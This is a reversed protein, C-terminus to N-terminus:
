TCPHDSTMKWRHRSPEWYGKMCFGQTSARLRTFHHNRVRRLTIAIADCGCSAIPGAGRALTHSWRAWQMLKAGFTRTIYFSHPKIHCGKVKAQYTCPLRTAASASTAEATVGGAAALSVLVSAIILFRHKL